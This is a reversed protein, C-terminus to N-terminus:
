GNNEVAQVERYDLVALVFLVLVMGASFLCWECWAHIVFAELYNLWATFLAGWGTLILAALSLARSEAYREQMGFVSLLLVVAYFGLGWTAVPLGLFVSWRSTQVQECSSVGCALSGIFGFKYLTLYAGLFLGLLSVLAMWMRKTM